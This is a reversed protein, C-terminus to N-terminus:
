LDDMQLKAAKTQAGKSKPKAEAVLATNTQVQQARMIGQIEEDSLLHVIEEYQILHKHIEALHNKIMPDKALLAAELELMRNHVTLHIPNSLDLKTETTNM